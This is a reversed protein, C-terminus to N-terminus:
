LNELIEPWEVHGNLRLDAQTMANVEDAMSGPILVQERSGVGILVASRGNAQLWRLHWNMQDQSLGKRGLVPTSPRRPWAAVAKLELMTVTGNARRLALVDPIGDSFLNEIRELLAVRALRPRARDWFLQEPKRM